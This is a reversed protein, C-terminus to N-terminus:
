RAWRGGGLGVPALAPSDAIVGTQTGRGWLGDPGLSNPLSRGATTMRGGGAPGKRRQTFFKGAM